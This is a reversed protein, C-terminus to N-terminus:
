NLRMLPFEVDDKYVKFGHRLYFEVPGSPNNSNNRRAFTEVAKAGRKRLDEIINQLLQSGLGRKRFEEPPVFLCSILVADNSPSIPYTLSRPLFDRPAYQAFGVAKGDAYIIKGSNGFQNNINKLWQLKKQLKDENKKRTPNDYEKSFWYLCYKCSFPYDLWEPADKLNKENLDVIEIKM